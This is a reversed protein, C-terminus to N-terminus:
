SGACPMASATNEGSRTSVAKISRRSDFHVSWRLRSAAGAVSSRTYSKPASAKSEIKSVSRVVIGQMTRSTGWWHAPQVLRAKILASSMRITAAGSRALKRLVLIDEIQQLCRPRIVANRQIAEILDAHRLSGLDVEVFKGLRDLGLRDRGNRELRLHKARGGIVALHDRFDGGIM